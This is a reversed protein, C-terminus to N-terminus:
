AKEIPAYKQQLNKIGVGPFAITIMADAGSGTVSVVTGVGWKSHNAKDGAHWQVDSNPRIPATATRINKHQIAQMAEFASQPKGSFHIGNGMQKESPTFQHGYNTMGPRVGSSGFRGDGYSRSGGYVDGFGAIGSGDIREIYADPIENLFRSPPNMNTHGYLMRQRAYTLYLKKQARTIGVYCARREEALEAPEMLTRSHPFVGEEMGAMFVVPFELGKASHLTMLTVSDEDLTTNDIDSILSIHNLFNELDPTEDTTRIFEKAVGVFEELNEKRTKDEIKDSKDLEDIYGSKDLVDSIFDPLDMNGQTTLSTLIFEAFKALTNSARKTLGPVDDLAPSSIVDFVSLGQSGAFETLRTLTTNGLGRKPTNIIRMLSISDVPNFIVRLYAIIDKIEKRDYFKLGGVMKYPIGAEMMGEEIVRSQANTRYLVATDGYPVGDVELQSKITRAIFRAEDHENSACYSTLKDGSAKETWLRKPLHDPNNKIVANAAELISKTSRYNQELKIITADPYDKKFDLINHIDAGRWGYISQDADGVVCLNRYGGSLIKTLQYQAGNTDQYEDVLIYHFRRQYKERIEENDELLMVAIMLLDDFDMANNDQLKKQYLKYIEATKKEFFTDTANKAFTRPGMLDNKANSIVNLIASPQFQKEDLNLEKLCEKILTKQDSTDYIVFNKKYIGTAEIDRRLMRACFSHFTSLWVERADDGILRAARDKMEQAAKNTFTIALIQYPPVGHALLNAIRCTLVRTKGSGAGAMILLPGDMHEVAKRQEPNLNSFIDLHFM